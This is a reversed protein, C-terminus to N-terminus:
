REEGSAEVIKAVPSLLYEMVTRKGELIEAAVQMGPVLKLQRGRADLRQSELAILAKYSLRALDQQRTNASNSSSSSPGAGGSADPSIGTVEGDLMGYKEFPYAAVKVRVKQHPRVFGVDENRIHVEAILPEKDPVLSLLVTGPAVVTGLTHTALNQVIGAQPARLELLANRHRQKAWKQQLKRYQGEADVWEDHLASRYKSALQAIQRRAVAVAAALSTLTERQARLDQAEELYDRQKARMKLLPVYGKKGMAAYSDAQQKLIPTVKELKVLVQKAAEYDAQAKRLEQKAQALSDTYAQRHALLQAEIQHYLEPPTGPPRTMDRGALEATIRRLQLSRLELESQLTRTDAQALQPDMKILIQGARVHEDDQVLIQEIIGGDAPQVIKVYSKPTLEGRATAVIDLRGFSMWGLAVLVLAIVAYLVALPLRRPPDEQIALLGPAFELAERSLRLTKEKSM